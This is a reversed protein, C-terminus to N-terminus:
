RYYHISEGEVFDMLEHDKSFFDEFYNMKRRSEVAQPNAYRLHRVCFATELRKLPGKPENFGESGVFTINPSHIVAKFHPGIPFGEKIKIVKDHSTFCEIFHFRVVECESSSAEDLVDNINDPLIDDADPYLVWDFEEDITKYLDDLSENNKFSWGTGYDVVSKTIKYPINLSDLFHFIDEDIKGIQLFYLKSVKTALNSISLKMLDKGLKYQDIEALRMMGCVKNMMDM